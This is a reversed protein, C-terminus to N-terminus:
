TNSQRLAVRNRRFIYFLAGGSLCLILSLAIMVNFLTSNTLDYKSLFNDMYSKKEEGASDKSGPSAAAAAVVPNIASLISQSVGDNEKSSKVPATNNVPMMVVSLNEDTLGPMSNRILSRIQVMYDPTNRKSAYVILAAATPPKPNRELASMDTSIHENLQVNGSIVGPIESLMHDLQQEKAYIMKVKQQEPSTILQGPPFIQNVTDFKHKPYGSSHLIDLADVLHSEEVMLTVQGEKGTMDKSASINNSLLLGLMQNSESENLNHYAAVKCGGLLIVVPLLISWHTLMKITQKIM